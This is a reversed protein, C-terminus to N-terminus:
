QADDHWQLLACWRVIFGLARLITYTHFMPGRNSRNIHYHGDITHEADVKATLDLDSGLSFM